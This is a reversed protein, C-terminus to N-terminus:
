PVMNKLNRYYLPLWVRAVDDVLQNGNREMGMFEEVQRTDDDIVDDM